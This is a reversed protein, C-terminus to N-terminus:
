VRYANTNMMSVGWVYDQFDISVGHVYEPLNHQYVVQLTEVDVGVLPSSAMWLIGHADEMCGGGGAVYATDWTETEPDFRGVDGACTWVYGSAGVTMGYGSVPMPYLDYEFTDIDVHVLHGIS